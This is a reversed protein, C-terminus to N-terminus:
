FREAFVTQWRYKKEESFTLASLTPSCIRETFKLGYNSESRSDVNQAKPNMSNARSLLHLFFFASVQKPRRNTKIRWRMKSSDNEIPCLNRYRPQLQRLSSVRHVDSLFMNIIRFCYVFLIYCFYPFPLLFYLLFFCASFSSLEM